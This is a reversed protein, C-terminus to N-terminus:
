SKGRFLLFLFCCCYVLLSPYFHLQHYKNEPNFAIVFKVTEYITIKNILLIRFKRLKRLIRLEQQSRDPM